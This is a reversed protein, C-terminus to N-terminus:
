SPERPTSPPRAGRPSLVALLVLGSAASALHWRRHWVDWTETAHGLAAFAFLALLPLLRWERTRLFQILTVVTSAVLVGIM